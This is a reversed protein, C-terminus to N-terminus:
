LISKVKFQFEMLEGERKVIIRIKDGSHQLASKYQQMNQSFNNDIAIVIDGEQLGALDAPSDKAVDGLIIHGKHYYLEIGSYSYDFPDHFFKNPILHIDGKDYNLIVNFRRLLDNGILGGLNPYSTVNYKDEFVFIPVQRFKYPGLKVEKVVTLSMDITGGTGEAGKTFFKRNKQLLASDRIFDTTVMLNLGAGMDYLFRADIINEDKVTIDQVPLTQIRPNLLYGGRPYKMSGKTWVEMESNDYNIKLIYRSIFSYGIIGDIKVGYVSTLIEYDNVHFDLSDVLLGPLHLKRDYVFSVKKIGAIGRISRNSPTPEINFRLLTTSDISIGGSGTDFIFNLTDPFPPIQGHLLIVGGYLQTFKFRTIMKSPEM